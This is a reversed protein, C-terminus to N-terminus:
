PTSNPNDQSFRMSATGAIRNVRINWWPQDAVPRGSARYQEAHLALEGSGLPWRSEPGRRRDPKHRRQPCGIDDSSQGVGASSEIGRPAGVEAFDSVSNRARIMPKLSKLTPAIRHYGGIARATRSAVVESVGEPVIISACIRIGYGETIMNQTKQSAVAPVTSSGPPANMAARTSQPPKPDSKMSARRASTFRPAGRITSQSPVTM